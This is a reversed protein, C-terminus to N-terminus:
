LADALKYEIDPTKMNDDSLEFKMPYKHEKIEEETM